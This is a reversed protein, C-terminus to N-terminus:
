DLITELAIWAAPWEHSESRTSNLFVPAHAQSPASKLSCNLCPSLAFAIGCKLYRRAAGVIVFGPQWFVTEIHVSTYSTRPRERPLALMDIQVEKCSPLAGPVHPRSGHLSDPASPLDWACLINCAYIAWGEYAFIANCDYSRLFIKM